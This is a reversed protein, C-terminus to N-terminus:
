PYVFFFFLFSIVVCLFICFFFLFKATILVHKEVEIELDDFRKRQLTSQMPEFESQEFLVCYIQFTELLWTM